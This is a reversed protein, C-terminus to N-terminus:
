CSTYVLNYFAVRAHREIACMTVWEEVVLCDVVKNTKKEEKEKHNTKRTKNITAKAMTKKQLINLYQVFIM